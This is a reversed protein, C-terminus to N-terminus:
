KAAPSGKELETRIESIAQPVPTTGQMVSNWYRERFANVFAARNPNQIVFPVKPALEMFLGALNQDGFFPEPRNFRLDTWAPKFATFCNGQLFREVNADVDMMVWELFKWCAEAQKTKKFVVMGQGSFSSTTKRGRSDKDTWIPMPMAKWHGKNAPDFNQIMDLGYWDAGIVSLVGNNKVYSNFFEPEFITGRDPLIAIGDKKWQVLKELTSIAVATDPLIEGGKGFVEYGRQRMMIEFYSWDLAAMARTPSKITEAVKEFKEWTSIDRPSIKLERFLDDRYYLVVNSVSQPIGYYRKNWEFLGWRQQLIGKDMGSAKIRDTLDLFPSESRLYLSFYIEDLQVIDPTNVGSKIAIALKDPMETFGYSRVEAEFKPDVAKKYREIMMLYYKMDTPSNVWVQVPKAHLTQGLVLTLTLATAIQFRQFLPKLM